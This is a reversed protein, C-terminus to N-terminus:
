NDKLKCSNTSVHLFDPLEMLVNKLYVTLYLGSVLNAVGMNKGHGVLFKRNTHIQMLMCFIVTEDM